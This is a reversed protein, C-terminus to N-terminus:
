IGSYRVMYPTTFYWGTIVGVFTAMLLRQVLVLTAVRAATADQPDEKNSVEKNSVTPDIPISTRTATMPEAVTATESTTATKATLTVNRLVAGTAAEPEASTVVCSEESTAAETINTSTKDETTTATKDIITAERLVDGTTAQSEMTTDMPERNTTTKMEITTATRPEAVSPAQREARVGGGGGHEMLPTAPVTDAM